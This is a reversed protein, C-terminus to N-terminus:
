ETCYINVASRYKRCTCHKSWYLSFTQMFKSVFLFIKMIIFFYVWYLVTHLEELIRKGTVEILIGEIKACKNFGHLACPNKSIMKIQRGTTPLKKRTKAHNLFRLDWFVTSCSRKFSTQNVSNTRFPRLMLNRLAM